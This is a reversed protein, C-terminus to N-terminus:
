IGAKEGHLLEKYLTRIQENIFISDFKVKASEKARIEIERRKKPHHVIYEIKDALDTCNGPEYLYGTEGDMILETTAGSAAGVVIIGALMSEVTVRGM